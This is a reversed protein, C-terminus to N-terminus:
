VFINFLMLHPRFLAIELVDEAVTLCRKASAPSRPGTVYTVEGRGDCGRHGRNTGIALSALTVMVACGANM